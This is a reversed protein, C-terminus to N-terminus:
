KGWKGRTQRVVMALTPRTTPGAPGNAFYGGATCNGGSTCSVSDIAAFGQTNLAGSGPVEIARGWTGGKESVVFAETKFNGTRYFGGASCNGASACSVSAIEARGGKNLAGSGPAEIAKAWASAPAAGASGHQGSSLSSASAPIAPLILASVLLM